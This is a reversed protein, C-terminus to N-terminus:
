LMTMGDHGFGELFGVDSTGAVIPPLNTMAPTLTSDAPSTNVGIKDSVDFLPPAKGEVAPTSSYYLKQAVTASATAVAESLKGSLSVTM